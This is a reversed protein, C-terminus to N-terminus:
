HNIEALVRQISSQISTVGEQVRERFEPEQESELAINDSRVIDLTGRVVDLYGTTAEIIKTQLKDAFLGLSDRFAKMLNEFLTDRGLAQNM